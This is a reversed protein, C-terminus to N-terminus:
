RKKVTRKLPNLRKTVGYVASHTVFPLHMELKKMNLAITTKEYSYGSEILDAIFQADFSDPHIMNCQIINRKKREPSIENKKTLQMAVTEFTRKILRNNNTGLKLNDRVCKM